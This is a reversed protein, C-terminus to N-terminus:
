KENLFFNFFYFETKVSVFSNKFSKQFRVFYLAKPVLPNFRLKANKEFKVIM